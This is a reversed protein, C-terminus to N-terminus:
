GAKMHAHGPQALEVRQADLKHREVLTHVRRRRVTPEDKPNEGGDGFKFPLQNAIADQGADGRRSSSALPEPARTPVHINGADRCLSGLTQRPALNAPLEAHPDSRRTRRKPLTRVGRRIRHGYRISKVRDRSLWKTTRFVLTERVSPM